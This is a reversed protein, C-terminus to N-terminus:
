LYESPRHTRGWGWLPGLRLGAWRTLVPGALLCWGWDGHRSVGPQAGLVLGQHRSGGPIEWDTPGPPVLLKEQATCAGWGEAWPLGRGLPRFSSVM